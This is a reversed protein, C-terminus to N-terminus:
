REDAAAMWRWTISLRAAGIGVYVFPWRRCNAGADEHCYSADVRVKLNEASWLKGDAMKFSPHSLSAACSAIILAFSAILIRMLLCTEVDHRRLHQQRPMSM